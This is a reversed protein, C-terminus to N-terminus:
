SYVKFKKSLRSKIDPVKLKYNFSSYWALVDYVRGKVVRWFHNFEAIALDM